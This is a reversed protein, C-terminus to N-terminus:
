SLRGERVAWPFVVDPFAMAGEGAAELHALALARGAEDRPLDEDDAATDPAEGEDFISFGAGSGKGKKKPTRAM